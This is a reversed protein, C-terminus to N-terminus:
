RGSVIWIMALGLLKPTPDTMYNMLATEEERRERHVRRHIRKIPKGLANLNVSFVAIFM